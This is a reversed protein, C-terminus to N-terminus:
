RKSDQLASLSSLMGQTSLVHSTIAEEEVTSTEALLTFSQTRQSSSAHTMAQRKLPSSILPYSSSTFYVNDHKAVLTSLSSTIQTAQTRLLFKSTKRTSRSSQVHPRSTLKEISYVPKPITEGTLALSPLISALTMFHLYGGETAASSKIVSSSPLSAKRRVVFPTSPLKATQLISVSSPVILRSPSRKLSMDTTLTSSVLSRLDGTEESQGTTRSKTIYIVEPTKLYDIASLVLPSSSFAETANEFISTETILQSLSAPGFSSTVRPDLSKDIIRKWFLFTSNEKLPITSDPKLRVSSKYNSTPSGQVSQQQSTEMLSTMKAGFALSPTLPGNRSFTGIEETKYDRLIRTPIVSPNDLSILPTLSRIKTSGLISTQDVASPSSSNVVTSNESYFFPTSFIDTVVHRTKQLSTGPYPTTSSTNITLEKSHSTFPKLSSGDLVKDKSPSAQVPKKDSFGKESGYISVTGLCVVYSPIAVGSVVSSSASGISHTPSKSQRTIAFLDKTSVPSPRITPFIAVTTRTINNASFVFGPLKSPTSPLKASTVTSQTARSGSFSFKHKVLSESLKQQHVDVDRSKSPLNYMEKQTATSVESGFSPIAQETSSELLSLESFRKMNLTSPSYHREDVTSLTKQRVDESSNGASIDPLQFSYSQSSLQSVSPIKPTKAHSAVTQPMKFSESFTERVSTM